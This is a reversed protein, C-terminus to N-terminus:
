KEAIVGTARGSSVLAKILAEGVRRGRQVAEGDHEGPVHMFMVPAAREGRGRRWYEVLGTYYIFECLFRGADASCRVDVGAVGESWRRWVDEVDFGPRLVEPAGYVRQWFDAESGALREGAGDAAQYGDRRALTELKYHSSGAAM